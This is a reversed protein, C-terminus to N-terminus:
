FMTASMVPSSDSDKARMLGNLLVEERYSYESHQVPAKYTAFMQLWTALVLLAWCITLATTSLAGITLFLTLHCLSGIMILVSAILQSNRYIHNRLTSAFLGNAIIATLLFSVETSFLNVPTTYLWTPNVLLAMVLGVLLISIAIHLHQLRKM